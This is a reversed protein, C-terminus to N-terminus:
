KAAEMSAAILARGERWRRRAAIYLMRSVMQGARQHNGVMAVPLGRAIWGLLSGVAQTPTVKGRWQGLEMAGWTSEVVLARVPFALLRDIEREFRSRERGICAILDPESKREIAVIKELGKVTYDGTTLTAIEMPMPALDLLHKERSDALGIVGEPKPDAPLYITM